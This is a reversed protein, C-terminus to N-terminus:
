QSAKGLNNSESLFTFIQGKGKDPQEEVWLPVVFGHEKLILGQYPNVDPYAVEVLYLGEPPASFRRYAYSPRYLMEQLDGLSKKKLGVMLLEGVLFRAMHYLFGNAEIDFLFLSDRQSVRFSFITRVASSTSERPSSFSTFDHTGLFIRSGIFMEELDLIRKPAKVFGVYHRLFAPIDEGLRAVYIYRKRLASKRAHFSLPVDFLNVARLDHPFYSRLIRLITAAPLSSTTHFNVVQGVAHVGADTRGSAHVTVREGLSRELITELTEQVTKKDRQRQWGSYQSGDYELVLLLNRLAM